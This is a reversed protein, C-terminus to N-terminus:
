SGRPRRLRAPPRGRRHHRGQRAPRPRHHGDLAVRPLGPEPLRLQPHGRARGGHRRRPARRGHAEGVEGVAAARAVDVAAVLAPTRKAETTTATPTMSLNHGVHRVGGVRPRVSRPGATTDRGHLTRASDHDEGTGSQEGSPREPMRCASGPLWRRRRCWWGTAPPPRSTPDSALRDVGGLACAVDDVIRDGSGGDAGDRDHGALDDADADVGHHGVGAPYGGHVVLLM